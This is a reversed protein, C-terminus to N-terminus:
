ENKRELQENMSVEVRKFYLYFGTWYVSYVISFLVIGIGIAIFNFPIWILPIAIIFYVLISLSFHIITKGLPSWRETEFIFSALGFYIGLVFSALMHNWVESINGEIHAFKMITLAIFTAIGGFAIGTISRKVIEKIM